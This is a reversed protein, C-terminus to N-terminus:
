MYWKKIKFLFYIKFYLGVSSAWNVVSIALVRLVSAQNVEFNDRSIYRLTVTVDNMKKKKSQKRVQVCFSPIFAHLFDTPVRRLKYSIWFTRNRWVNLFRTGLVTCMGRNYNYCALVISFIGLMYFICKLPSLEPSEYGPTIM